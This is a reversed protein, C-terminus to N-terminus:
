ALILSHDFKYVCLKRVFELKSKLCISPRETHIHTHEFFPKMQRAKNNTKYWWSVRKTECAHVSMSNEFLAIFSMHHTKSAQELSQFLSYSVLRPRFVVVLSGGADGTALGNIYMAVWGEVAKRVCICKRGTKHAFYTFGTTTTFFAKTAATAPAFYIVACRRSREFLSRVAFVSCLMDFGLSIIKAAWQEEFSSSRSLSFTFSSFMFSLVSYDKARKGLGFINWIYVVVTRLIVKWLGETSLIGSFEDNAVSYMCVTSFQAKSAKPETDM